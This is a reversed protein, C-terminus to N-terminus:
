AWDVFAEPPLCDVAANIAALVSAPTRRQEILWTLAASDADRSEMFAFFRDDSIQPMSELSERLDALANANCSQHSLYACRLVELFEDASVDIADFFVRDLPCDFFIYQGQTGLITARAKDIIRALLKIGGLEDHPSRPENTRLDIAFV